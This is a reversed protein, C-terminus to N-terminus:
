LGRLQLRTLLLFRPLLPRDPLKAATGADGRQAKRRARLMEPALSDEAGLRLSDASPVSPCSAEAKPSRGDVIMETGPPQRARGQINSFFPPM